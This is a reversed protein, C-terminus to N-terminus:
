GTPPAGTTSATSHASTRSRRCRATYSARTMRAGGTAMSRGMPSSCRCCSQDTRLTCAIIRERRAGLTPLADVLALVQIASLTSLMHADHGPYSGFAGDRESYCSSVFSILEDRDLADRAHMLSLAALGWYVGNMRLHATMHYALSTDRRQELKKIFRVHQDTLLTDMTADRTM